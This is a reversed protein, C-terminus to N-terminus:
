MREKGNIKAPCYDIAPRLIIVKYDEFVYPLATFPFNHNHYVAMSDNGCCKARIM